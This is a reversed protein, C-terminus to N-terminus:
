LDGRRLKRVMAETIQIGAESLSHKIYEATGNPKSKLITMIQTMQEESYKATKRKSAVLKVEREPGESTEKVSGIEIEENHHKDHCAQCVVILNRLSNKHSGDAFHGTASADKQPRIHHVELGSVIASSCIECAKRLLNPNYQSVSATEETADGILQHRFQQAKELFAFPLSLARAVELGYLSSGAGRHLTRDYILKDTAPDYRVRLHWIQLGPLEQIRPISLLGHLHTAFVYSSGKGDLWDLGAAVLSTASVSETGSCLEDGLVLSRNDARGLIERLETMEVTFSSLGAWLNDQNLIRTFISNYPRLRFTTAPVYTGCQALLVSIGLAKMLSSKGSANMGYVLWGSKGPVLSIDHKVYESRTSQMEILPHRLGTVEVSSGHQADEYVPACFGHKKSVRELTLVVDIRAIWTEAAEWIERSADSFAECMPALEKQFTARLEERKRLIATYLGDLHPFELTTSSKKKTLSMGPYPTAESMKKEIVKMITKTGAIAYQTPTSETSLADAPLGAWKCLTDVVKVIEGELAVLEEEKKATLPAKDARLFYLNDNAKEAKEIDFYSHFTEIYDKFTNLLTPDMKLTGEDTFVSNCLLIKKYTIELLLIDEACITYTQIKRHIRPLDHINKMHAYLQTTELTGMEKIQELRHRLETIDTIPYLLRERMARRGMATQTGLFLGLVSDEPRSMLLNVQNLVNNGLFVSRDPIWLTHQNLRDTMSPLHDEIFRLLYVLSMETLPKGRIFLSDHVPLLSKPKFMRRLLDERVVPNQLPSETAQRIHLLATHVGTRQRLVQESPISIADGKWYVICEKPPHVQCFHLLDDTTWSERKGSAANEYSLTQGTTLDIATAAFSPPAPSPWVSETFYISMLYLSETEAGETHTGPSLVRTMHRTIKSKADKEEEVVVCTWNERTLRLSFTHLSQIPIGSWLGDRNGTDEGKALRSVSAKKFLLKIGLFDIVKRATTQGECTIPDLVDYFEFFKGVQYFIATKPGYISSYHKYTRIYEDFMTTM